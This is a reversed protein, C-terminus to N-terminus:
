CLLISTEELKRISNASFSQQQTCFKVTYGTCLSPWGQPISQQRLFWEGSALPKEQNEFMKVGNRHSILTYIMSFQQRNTFVKQWTMKKVIQTQSKKINRTDPMNEDNVKGLSYTFYTVLVVFTSSSYFM